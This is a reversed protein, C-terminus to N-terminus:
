LGMFNRYATFKRMFNYRILYCMVWKTTLKDTTDSEKHGWPSYCALSGQGEGGGLAQESEHGNLQHHWGVM